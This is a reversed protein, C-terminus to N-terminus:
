KDYEEGRSVIEIIDSGDKLYRYKVKMDISVNMNQRYSKMSIGKYEDIINNLSKSRSNCGSSYEKYQNLIYYSLKLYDIPKLVIYSIIEYENDTCCYRKLSINNIILRDNNGKIFSISIFIHMYKEKPVQRMDSKYPIVYLPNVYIVYNDSSRSIGYLNIYRKIQKFSSKTSLELTKTNKYNNNLKNYYNKYSKDYGIKDMYTAISAYIFLTSFFIIIIAAGIFAIIM